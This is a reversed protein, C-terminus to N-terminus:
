HEKCSWVRVSLKLVHIMDVYKPNFECHKMEAYHSMIKQLGYYKETDNAVIELAGTGMICQYLFSFDCGIKGAILEHKTDMEFSVEAQKPLLDIKKGEKACHFYLLVQDDIIDYGFNMPVIYAKNGDVFGLRCCDCSKLIEVMRSFDAIERDKRRMM